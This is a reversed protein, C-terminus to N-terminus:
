PQCRLKLTQEPIHETWPVPHSFYPLTHPTAMQPDAEHKVDHAEVAVAVCHAEIWAGLSSPKPLPASIEYNGPDGGSYWLDGFPNKTQQSWEDVAQENLFKNNNEWQKQWLAKQQQEQQSAQVPGIRVLDAALYCGIVVLAMVIWDKMTYNM